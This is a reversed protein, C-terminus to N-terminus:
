RDVKYVFASLEDEGDRRVTITVKQIGDDPSNLAEVTPNPISWGSPIDITPDVAYETADYQYNCDKIYEIESRALSEATVKEDAVMAANTATGISILFPVGIISLLALAVITELLSIGKESKMTKVWVLRGPFMTNGPRRFFSYSMTM